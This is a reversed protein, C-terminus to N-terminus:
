DFYTAIVGQHKSSGVIRLLFYDEIQAYDFQLFRRQRHEIDVLEKLAPLVVEVPGAFLFDKGNLIDRTHVRHRQLLSRATTFREGDRVDDLVARALGSQSSRRRPKM